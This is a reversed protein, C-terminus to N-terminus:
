FFSREADIALGQPYDVGEKVTQQSLGPVTAKESEYGAASANRNRAAGLGFFGFMGM